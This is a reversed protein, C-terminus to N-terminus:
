MILGDKLGRYCANLKGWRGRALFYFIMGTFYFLHYMFVTPWNWIQIYKKLMWIRNRVNYYHVNAHLFGEKGKTTSKGSMGAIHYVVSEPIYHLEYGLKRIRFSLDVDEYYTFLKEEFLGTKKLVENRIMFACGTIWDVQVPQNYLHSVKKYYGKTYCYGWVSNFFSGANWIINRDHEFRILPQVAGTNNNSNLYNILPELFDPEVFTDNNLLLTYTYGAEIAFKMARNNGGTFGINEKLEILKIEQFEEQLKIASGDSSGNDVVIITYGGYSTKNLSLICDRTLAYGNWNVLIIALNHQM